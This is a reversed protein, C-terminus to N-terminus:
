ASQVTGGIESSQATSEFNLMGDAAMLQDLLKMATPYLALIAVMLGAELRSPAM